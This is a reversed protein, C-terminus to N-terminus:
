KFNSVIQPVVEGYRHISQRTFSSRTRYVKTKYCLIWNLAANQFIQYYLGGEIVANKGKKRREKIQKKRGSKM